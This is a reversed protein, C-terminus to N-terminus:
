VVSKRDVLRSMDADASTREGANQALRPDIINDPLNSGSSRAEVKYPVLGYDGPASVMGYKGDMDTPSAIHENTSKPPFSPPLPEAIHRNAPPISPPLPEDNSSADDGINDWATVRPAENPSVAASATEGSMTTTTM